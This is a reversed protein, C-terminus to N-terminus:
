LTQGCRACRNDNRCLCTLTWAKDPYSSEPNCCKGKWDGCDVCIGVGAPIGAGRFQGLHARDEATADRVCDIPDGLLYGNHNKLSKVSYDALAKVRVEM